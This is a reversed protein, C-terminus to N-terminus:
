RWPDSETRCPSLLRRIVRKWSTPLARPVPFNADPANSLTGKDPQQSQVHRAWFVKCAKETRMSPSPLRAAVDKFDIDAMRNFGQTLRTLAEVEHPSWTSVRPEKTSQSKRRPKSAEAAESQVLTDFQSLRSFPAPSQEETQGQAEAKALISDVTRKKTQRKEAELGKSTRSLQSWRRAISKEKRGLLRALEERMALPVTMATVGASQMESQMREILLGDQEPTWRNKIWSAMEHRGPKIERGDSDDDLGNAYEVMAGLEEECHEKIDSEEVRVKDNANRSQLKRKTRMWKNRISSTTRGPFAELLKSFIKRSYRFSGQRQLQMAMTEQILAEEEMSWPDPKQKEPSDPDGRRKRPRGPGRRKPADSSGAEDETAWDPPPSFMNRGRGRDEAQFAGTSDGSCLADEEDSSSDSEDSSSASRNEHPESVDEDDDSHMLRAVSSREQELANGLPLSPEDKVFLQHVLHSISKTNTATVHFNSRSTIQNLALYRWTTEEKPPRFPYPFQNKCDKWAHHSLANFAADSEVKYTFSMGGYSLHGNGFEMNCCFIDDKALTECVKACDKAPLGELRERYRQIAEKRFRGATEVYAEAFQCILQDAKLRAQEMETRTQRIITDVDEPMQHREFAEDPPESTTYGGESHGDSDYDVLAKM